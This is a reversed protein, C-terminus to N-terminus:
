VTFNVVLNSAMKTGSAASKIAKSAILVYSGSDLAATPDITVVTKDTNATIATAVATGDAKMLYINDSNITSELIAKNFTLVINESTAVGTAGDAPVSTVTPPTTDSSVKYVTALFNAPPNQGESEDMIIGKQGDQDYIFTGEITPTNFTVKGDEVQKYKNQFQKFKGKYLWVYASTGDENEIRFGCAVYRSRGSDGEAMILTGKSADYTRGFFVAQDKMPVKNLGIKLGTDGERYVIIRVKGDGSLKAEETKLDMDAEMAGEIVVVTGYTNTEEDIPAYCFDLLNIPIGEGFLQLNMKYM